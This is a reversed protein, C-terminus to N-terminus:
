DPRDPQEFITQHIELLNLWLVYDLAQLNAMTMLAFIQLMNNEVSEMIKVAAQNSQFM